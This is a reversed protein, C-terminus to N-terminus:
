DIVLEKIFGYNSSIIPLHHFNPPLDQLIYTVPPTDNFPIDQDQDRGTQERQKRALM